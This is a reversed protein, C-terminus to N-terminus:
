VIQAIVVSHHSRCRGCAVIHVEGDPLNETEILQEGRISEIWFRRTNGCAICLPGMKNLRTTQTAEYALTM